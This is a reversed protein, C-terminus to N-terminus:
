KRAKLGSFMIKKKLRGILNEKITQQKSEVYHEYNDYDQVKLM